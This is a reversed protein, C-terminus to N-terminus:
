RHQHGQMALVQEVAVDTRGVQQPPVAISQRNQEIEPQQAVNGGQGPPAFQSQARVQWACGGAVCGRFQGPAIGNLGPHVQVGHPHEGQHQEAAFLGGGQEIWDREVPAPRHRQLGFRGQALLEFSQQTPIRAAAKGTRGLGKGGELRQRHGIAGTRHGPGVAGHHQHGLSGSGLWPLQLRSRGQVM